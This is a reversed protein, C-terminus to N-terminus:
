SLIGKLFEHVCKNHLFKCFLKGGSQQVNTMDVNAKMENPSEAEIKSKKTTTTGNDDKDIEM